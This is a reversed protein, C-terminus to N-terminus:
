SNSNIYILSWSTILQSLWMFDNPPARSQWLWWLMSCKGSFVIHASLSDSVNLQSFDMCQSIIVYISKLYWKKFGQDDPSSNNHYVHPIWILEHRHFVPISAGGEWTQQSSLGRFHVSRSSYIASTIKKIKWSWITAFIDIESFKGFLVMKKDFFFTM